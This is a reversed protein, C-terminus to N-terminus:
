ENCIKCCITLFINWVFHMYVAPIPSTCTAILEAHKRGCANNFYPCIGTIMSILMAHLNYLCYIICSNYTETRIQFAGSLENLMATQEKPCVTKLIQQYRTASNGTTRYLWLIQVVIGRAMHVPGVNPTDAIWHHAPQTSCLWQGYPLRNFWSDLWAQELLVEFQM